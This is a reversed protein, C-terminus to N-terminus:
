MLWSLLSDEEGEGDQAPVMEKGEYVFMEGEDGDYWGAPFKKIPIIDEGMDLHHRMGSKDIRVGYVM